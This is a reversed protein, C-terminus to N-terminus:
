SYNLSERNDWVNDFRTNGDAWLADVNNGSTQVKQIRWASASTATGPEAEGIYIASGSTRVYSLLLGSVTLLEGDASVVARTLQTNATNNDFGYIGNSM